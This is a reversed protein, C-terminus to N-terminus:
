DVEVEREYTYSLDTMVQTYDNKQVQIYNRGRIHTEVEQGTMVCHIFALKKSLSSQSLREPHVGQFVFRVRGAM